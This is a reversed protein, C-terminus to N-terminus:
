AKRRYRRKKKVPEAEAQMIVDHLLAGARFLLEEKVADADLLGALRLLKEEQPTLKIRLTSM